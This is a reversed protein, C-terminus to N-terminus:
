LLRRTLHWLFLLFLGFHFLFIVKTDGLNLKCHGNEIIGEELDISHGSKGEKQAVLPKENGLAYARSIAFTMLARRTSDLYFRCM